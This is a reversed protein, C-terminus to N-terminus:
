LVKTKRFFFHIKYGCPYLKNKDFAAITINNQSLLHKSLAIKQRLVHQNNSDNKKDNFRDFM